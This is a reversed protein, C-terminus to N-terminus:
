IDQYSRYGELIFQLTSVMLTGREVWSAAM